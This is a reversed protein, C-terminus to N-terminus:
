RALRELRVAESKQRDIWAGETSGYEEALLTDILEKKELGIPSPLSNLLKKM